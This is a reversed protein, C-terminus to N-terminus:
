QMQVGEGEAEEAGTFFNVKNQLVLKNDDWNLRSM